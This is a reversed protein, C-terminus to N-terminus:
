LKAVSTNTAAAFGVEMFLKKCVEDKEGKVLYLVNREILANRARLRAKYHEEITRFVKKLEENMHDDGAKIDEYCKSHIATGKATRWPIQVGTEHCLVCKERLDNVPNM